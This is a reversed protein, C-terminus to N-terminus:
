HYCRLQAVNCLPVWQAELSGMQVDPCRGCRELSGVLLPRCECTLIVTTLSSDRNFCSRANSSAFPWEVVPLLQSVSHRFGPFFDWCFYIGQLTEAPYRVRPFALNERTDCTLVGKLYTTDVQLSTVANGFISGASLLVFTNSHDSRFPLTKLTIHWM